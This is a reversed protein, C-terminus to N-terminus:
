GVGCTKQRENLAMHHRTDRSVLYQWVCVKVMSQPALIFKTFLKNFRHKPTRPLLFSALVRLMPSCKSVPGKCLRPLYFLISPYGIPLGIYPSCSVSLVWPWLVAMYDPLPFFAAQLGSVSVGGDHVDLRWRQPLLLMKAQTGAMKRPLGQLHIHPKFFALM